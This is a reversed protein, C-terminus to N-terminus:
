GAEVDKGDACVEQENQRSPPDGDHLIAEGPQPQASQRECGLLLGALIFILAFSALAPASGSAVGAKWHAVFDDVTWPRVLVLGVSLLAPVAFPHLTWRILAARCAIVFASWTVLTYVGRFLAGASAYHTAAAVQVGSTESFSRVIASSGLPGAAIAFILGVLGAAVREALAHRGSVRRGQLWIAAATAFFGPMYIWSNGAMGHRWSAAFAVAEAAVPGGTDLREAFQELPDAALFMWLFLGDAATLLALTAARGAIRTHRRSPLASPIVATRM